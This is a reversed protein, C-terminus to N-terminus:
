IKKKFVMESKESLIIKNLEDTIREKSIIRIREKNKSIADLSKKEITFNLRSAFRIARMMRLPDDSYTIDPDLPTEIVHRKGPGVDVRAVVMAALVAAVGKRRALEREVMDHRDGLAAAFVPLVDDATTDEAVAPLTPARRGLRAHM